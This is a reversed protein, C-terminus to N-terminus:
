TLPMFFFSTLVGNALQSPIISAFSMETSFTSRWLSLCVFGLGGFIVLLRQDVRPMLIQAVFPSFFIALMGTFAMAYGAWSATYHLNTQLWLPLLFSTAAVLGFGLGLACASITFSRYQFIRLDVVPHEDTLEWILFAVFGILG